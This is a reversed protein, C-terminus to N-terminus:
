SKKIEFLETNVWENHIQLDNEIIEIFIFGNKMLVKKSAFNDTATGAIVKNLGYINFAKDLIIKVAESAYGLNNYKEGIRYGLEATEKNKELTVLNIRGVIDGYSNRIVHMFIDHNDQEALLENTIAKFSDLNFYNDPRHPLNKEFYERNEKEFHYIDICNEKSMVEISIL